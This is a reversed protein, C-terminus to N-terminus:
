GSSRRIPWRTAWADLASPSSSLGSPLIIAKTGGREVVVPSNVLITAIKCLAMRCVVSPLEVEDQIREGKSSIKGVRFCNHAASQHISNSISNNEASCAYRDAPMPLRWWCHVHVALAGFSCSLWGQAATSTHPWHRAPVFVAQHLMASVTPLCM